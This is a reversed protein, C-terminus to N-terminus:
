RSHRRPVVELPSQWVFSRDALRYALSTATGLCACLRVHFISFVVASQRRRSPAYSASSGIGYRRFDFLLSAQTSCATEHPAQFVMHTNAGKATILAGRKLLPTGPDARRSPPIKSGNEAGPHANRLLYFAGNGDTERM